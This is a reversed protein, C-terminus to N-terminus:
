LRPRGTSPSTPRGPWPLPVTHPALHSALAARHRTTVEADDSLGTDTLSTKKEVTTGVVVPPPKCHAPAVVSVGAEVATLEPPDAAKEARARKELEAKKEYAEREQIRQAM